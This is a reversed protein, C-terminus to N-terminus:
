LIDNSGLFSAEVCTRIVRPVLAQYINSAVDYSTM